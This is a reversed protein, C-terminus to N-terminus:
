YWALEDEDGHDDDFDDRAAFFVLEPTTPM